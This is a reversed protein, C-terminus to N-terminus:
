LIATKLAINMTHMTVFITEMNLCAGTPTVCNYLFPKLSCNAIDIFLKDSVLLAYRKVRNSTRKKRKKVAQLFRLHHMSEVTLMLDYCFIYMCWWSDSSTDTVNFALQILSLRNSAVTETMATENGEERKHKKNGNKEWLFEM